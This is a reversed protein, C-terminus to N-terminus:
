LPKIVVNRFEIKNDRHHQLGIYGATFKTDHGDLVKVTDLTAVLHDGRVEIQYTHWENPAPNVPAAGPYVSTLSFAVALTALLRNM